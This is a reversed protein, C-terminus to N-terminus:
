LGGSLLAGGILAGGVLAGGLALGGGVGFRYEIDPSGTLLHKYNEEVASVFKLIDSADYKNIQNHWDIVYKIIHANCYGSVECNKMEIKPVISNILRLNYNGYEQLFNKILDNIQLYLKKYNGELPETIANWLVADKKDLAFLLLMSHRIKKSQIIVRIINYGKKNLPFYEMRLSMEYYMIGNDNNENYSVIIPNDILGPIDHLVLNFYRGDLYCKTSKPYNKYNTLNKLM